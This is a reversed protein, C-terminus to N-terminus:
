SRVIRAYSNLGELLIFPLNLISMKYCRPLNSQESGSRGASASSAYPELKGITESGLTPDANAAKSHWKMCYLALYLVYLPGSGGSLTISLFMWMSM